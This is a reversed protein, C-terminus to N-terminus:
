VLIHQIFSNIIFSILFWAFHSVKKRHSKWATWHIRTPSILESALRYISSSMRYISRLRRIHICMTFTSTIWHSVREQSYWMVNIRFDDCLIGANTIIITVQHLTSAEQCRFAFQFLYNMFNVPFFSETKGPQSGYTRLNSLRWEIGVIKSPWGQRRLKRTSVTRIQRYKSEM